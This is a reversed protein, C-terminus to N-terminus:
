NEIVRFRVRGDKSIEDVLSTDKFAAAPTLVGKHVKDRQNLMIKAVLVFLIPTAVYGVEPGTVKVTLKVDPGANGKTGKLVEHSHGRAVFTSTFSSADIQEKSPGEKSFVGGSFLKPHQLLINRGAEFKAFLTFLAGYFFLTLLIRLSPVEVWAKFIIPTLSPNNASAGNQKAQKYQLSQTLRVVAPDAFIFPILYANVESAWKLIGGRKPFGLQKAQPKPTPLLGTSAPRDGKAPRDYLAKRTRILTDRSAFGNVASAYTGFNGGPVLGGTNLAFFMEVSAPVANRRILEQKCVEVAMDSPVSDFASAPVLTSGVEEAEAHYKLVMDEIFGPEGSLDAYDTANQGQAKLQRSARITARVVPPGYKAYPGVCNLILKTGKALEELADEDSTDVIVLNPKALGTAEIQGAYEALVKELRAKNRGALTWTLQQAPVPPRSAVEGVVFKGTFGSAGLITLDTRAM